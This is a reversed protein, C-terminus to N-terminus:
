DKRRKEKKKKKVSIYVLLNKDLFDDFFLTNDSQRTIYSQM